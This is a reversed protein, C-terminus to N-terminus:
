KVVVSAKQSSVLHNHIGWTGARSITVTATQGPVLMGVNLEPNDTHQPHPDSDIQVTSTSTNKFTVSGGASITVTAPSFGGSGLEMTVPSASAAPSASTLPSASPSAAVSPSPTPSPSPGATPTSRHTAAWVLAGIVLVALVAIIATLTSRRM